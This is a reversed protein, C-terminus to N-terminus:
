YSIDTSYACINIKELRNDAYMRVPKIFRVAMDMLRGENIMTANVTSVKM